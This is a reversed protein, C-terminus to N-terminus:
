ETNRVHLVIHDTVSRGMTDTITLAIVVDQGGPLRVVPTFYLPDSSTPNLFSGGNASWEFRVDACLPHPITAHLQVMSCEDFCVPLNRNIGARQLCVPTCTSQCGPNACPSVPEGCHLTAPLTVTVAPTECGILSECGTPLGCTCPSVYGCTSCVNARRQCVTCSPYSCPTAPSGCGGVVTATRAGYLPERTPRIAPVVSVVHVTGCNPCPPTPPLATSVYSTTTSVPQWYSSASRPNTSVTSLTISDADAPETVTMTEADAATVTEAAPAEAVPTLLLLGLAAAVVALGVYLITNNM